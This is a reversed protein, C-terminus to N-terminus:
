YDYQHYRYWRELDFRREKATGAQASLYNAPYLRSVDGVPAPNLVAGGCDVCEDIAFSETTTQLRDGIGSYKEFIPGQCFPCRELKRTAGGSVEDSRTSNVM